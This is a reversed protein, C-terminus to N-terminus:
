LKSLYHARLEPSSVKGMQVYRKEFGKIYDWKATEPMSQVLHAIENRKVLAEKCSRAILRSICDRLQNVLARDVQVLLLELEAQISELDKEIAKTIESVPVTDNEFNFIRKLVPKCQTKDELNRLFNDRSEHIYLWVLPCQTSLRAGFVMLVAAVQPDSTKLAQDHGADM